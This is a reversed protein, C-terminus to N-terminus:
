RGDGGAVERRVSMGGRGGDDVHIEVAKALVTAHM